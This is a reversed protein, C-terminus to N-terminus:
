KMLNRARVFIFAPLRCLLDYGKPDKTKLAESPTPESIREIVFGAATLPETLDRLPRRYYRMKEGLWGWEEEILEVCLYGPDLLSAQRIPHHTSFVLTGSPRLLRAWERFTETLDALYHLVLSSLIVDFTGDLLLNRLNSVDGQMVRARGGLREDALSVMRRSCDVAVVRAGNRALWDTYWGPGCGADLVDTGSVDPLLALTAPREYLANWPREDVGAAYRSAITDYNTPSVM